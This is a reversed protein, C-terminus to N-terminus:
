IEVKNLKANGNLLRVDLEHARRVIAKRKKAGVTRSIVGAYKRNQMVLMHLDEVNSIPFGRFGSPTLYKTKRDSGYGKNPM